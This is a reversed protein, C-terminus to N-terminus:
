KKRATQTVKADTKPKVVEKKPAQEKTAYEMCWKNTIYTIIFLDDGILPLLEENELEALNHKTPITGNHKHTIIAILEKRSVYKLIAPNISQKEPTDETARKKLIVSFHKMLAKKNTEM